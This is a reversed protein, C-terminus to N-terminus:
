IFYLMVGVAFKRAFVSEQLHRCQPMLDHRPLCFMDVCLNISLSHPLNVFGTIVMRKM